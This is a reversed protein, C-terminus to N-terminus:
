QCFPVPYQDLCEMEGPPYPKLVSLLETQDKHEPDLWDSELNKPVIVPMRNHIPEVQIGRLHCLRNIFSFYYYINQQCIAEFSM